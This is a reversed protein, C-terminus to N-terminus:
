LNEQLLVQQRPSHLNSRSTAPHRSVTSVNGVSSVNQERIEGLPIEITTGLKPFSRDLLRNFEAWSHSSRLLAIVSILHERLKPHGLDLTFGQHHKWKRHGTETLPNLRRLEDLVGPAIRKYVIDNTYHGVVQPYNKMTSPDAWSHLRCIEEYFEIPFTKTWEQFEKAIYKEIITALARENRIQQYGTAEDILGIIGVIAFGRFLIEARKVLDFQRSITKGDSHATLIADCIEVLITAPYGDAPGGAPIAISVPTGLAFRLDPSIYPKLWEQQAFRPIKAEDVEIQIEDKAFSHDERLDSAATKKRAGGRSIGVASYLSRQTIVRTENELVYCQIEIGGIVLPKEPTGAIVKLPQQTM